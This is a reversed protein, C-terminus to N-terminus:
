IGDKKGRGKGSPGWGQLLCLRQMVEVPLKPSAFQKIQEMSLGDELCGLLYDMQRATYGEEVLKTLFATVSRRQNEKKKQKRLTQLLFLPSAKAAESEPVEQNKSVKKEEKLEAPEAAQPKQVKEPAKGWLPLEEPEGALDKGIAKKYEAPLDPVEGEEPFLAALEEQDMPQRPLSLMEEELGALTGKVAEAEEQQLKKNKRIMGHRLTQLAVGQPNQELAKEAQSVPVGECACLYLENLLKTDERYNEALQKYPLAVWGACLILAYLYQEGMEQSWNKTGQKGEM